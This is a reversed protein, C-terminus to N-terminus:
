ATLQGVAYVVSDSASRYTSLPASVYALDFSVEVEMQLDQTYGGLSANDARLSYAHIAFPVGPLSPVFFQGYDGNYEYAKVMDLAKRNQKPVWPEIAVLGNEFALASGGYNTTGLITRTTALVDLGAFQFGYNVANASGLAQLRQALVFASDDAIVVLQGRYLNFEMLRRINQFFYNQESLPIETNLSSGNWAGKGGGASYQTKDAVLQAVFWADARNILNFCANQLTSAYMEAFSFINNDAQKISISFPEAFTTWTITKSLSDGRAGTHNYARASSGIATQRIPFYAYVSRDERTRIDALSPNAIVSKQAANFAVSDPLRWEGSLMRETFKAQGAVLASPVFYAM